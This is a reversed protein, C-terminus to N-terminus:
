LKLQKIRYQDHKSDEQKRMNLNQILGRKKQKTELKLWKIFIGEPREGIM